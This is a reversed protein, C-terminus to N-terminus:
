RLQTRDAVSGFLRFPALLNNKWGVGRDRAQCLIVTADNDGMQETAEGDVQTMLTSVIDAPKEADLQEVLDLLGQVGLLEGKQNRCGTLANSYSLVMDGSELRTTFHQYEQAGLVGGSADDDFASAELSNPRVISWTSSSARYLLPSPQGANCLAFSQTPAFFTGVLGTAYVGQESFERLQQHMDHIFRTQNIANVHNMMLDRLESALQVFGSSPACVDALLLRTIRGSACSSLFHVDGGDIASKRLPKNSVWLDLGPMAFCKEEAGNGGWVEMCRMRSPAGANQIAIQTTM